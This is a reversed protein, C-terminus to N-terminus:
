GPGARSLNKIKIWKHRVEEVEKELDARWGLADVSSYLAELQQLKVALPTARLEAIEFENMARYKELWRAGEERTAQNQM